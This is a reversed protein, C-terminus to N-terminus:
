FGKEKTQANEEALSKIREFGADILDVLVNACARYEELPGGYPDDIDYRHGNKMESLLYVKSAQDPFELRLAEAHGQTMVLVLDAHELIARDVERSRHASLDLGQAAMLQAAYQSAQAGEVTWTGASGVEWNTLQEREVRQRLLVDAM